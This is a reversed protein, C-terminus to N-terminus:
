YKASWHLALERFASHTYTKTVEMHGTGLMTAPELLLETYYNVLDLIGTITLHARIKCVVLFSFGRQNFESKGESKLPLEFESSHFCSFTHRLIYSISHINLFFFSHSFVLGIVYKWIQLGYKRQLGVFLSVRAYPKSGVFKHTFPFPRRYSGIVFINM